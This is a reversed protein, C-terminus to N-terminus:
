GPSDPGKESFIDNTVGAAPRRSNTAIEDGPCREDRIDARACMTTIGLVPKEDGSRHDDRDRLRKSSSPSAPPGAKGVGFM